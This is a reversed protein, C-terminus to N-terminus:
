RTRPVTSMFGMRRSPLPSARPSTWLDATNRGSGELLVSRQLHIILGGPAGYLYQGGEEEAWLNVVEELSIHSPGDPCIM